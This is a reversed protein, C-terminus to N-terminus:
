SRRRRAILLVGCGTLALAGPTPVDSVAHTLAAFGVNEIPVTGIDVTLTFPSGSSLDTERWRSLVRWSDLYGSAVAREVSYQTAQMNAMFYPDLGTLDLVAMELAGGGSYVATGNIM